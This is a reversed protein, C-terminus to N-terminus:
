RKTLGRLARKGAQPAIAGDVGWIQAWSCFRQRSPVPTSYQFRRVPVRM